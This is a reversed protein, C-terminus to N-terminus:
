SDDRAVQAATRKYALVGRVMASVAGWVSTDARYLSHKRIAFQLCLLPWVLASMNYYAAGRSVFYSDVYGRFWSSSSCDASAIVRPLYLIELGSRLADWLFVNEEGVYFEAGAGLRENFTIGAQLVSRRRFTIEVSSVKLCSLYTEWKPADRFVKPRGTGVRDVRFAIIDASPYEHYAALITEVYSPEYRLDDDAIVCVDSSAHEMALNRSRSLGTRNSCIVKVRNGVVATEYEGCEGNQNIVVVPSAIGIEQLFQMEDRCMTSVLVELTDASTCESRNVLSVLNM